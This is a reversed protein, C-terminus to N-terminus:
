VKVDIYKGYYKGFFIKMNNMFYDSKNDAKTITTTKGGSTYARGCEPCVAMFVQVSQSVVKRGEVQAKAGERSVHEQEHAMVAAGSSGASVHTPAKFSVGPDSSGDVYKRNRCTSCEIVGLKKMLKAEQSSGVSSTQEGTSKAGSAQQMSAETVGSGHKSYQNIYNYGSFGVQLSM